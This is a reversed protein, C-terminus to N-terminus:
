FVFVIRSTCSAVTWSVEYNRDLHIVKLPHSSSFKGWACLNEALVRQMAYSEFRNVFSDLDRLMRGDNIRLGLGIMIQKATYYCCVADLLYQVLCALSYLLM